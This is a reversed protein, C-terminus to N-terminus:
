FGTVSPDHDVFFHIENGDSDIQMFFALQLVWIKYKNHRPEGKSDYTKLITSGAHKRQILIRTVMLSRTQMLFALELFAGRMITISYNLTRSVIQLSLLRAHM